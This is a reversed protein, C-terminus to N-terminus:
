VLEIMVFGLADAPVFGLQRRANALTTTSMGREITVVVGDVLRGLATTAGSALLAPTSVLILDYRSRLAIMADEATPTAALAALESGKDGPGMVDFVADGLGPTQGFSIRATASEVSARGALLEALGAGPALGIEQAVPAGGADADILLVRRGSRVAVIAANVVTDTYGATPTIAVFMAIGRQFVAGFNSSLLEYQAPPRALLDIHGSRHEVVTVEGLLPMGLLDVVEDSRQAIPSSDARFWALVVAVLAGLGMGIIGYKIVSMLTGNTEVSRAPDLFDVGDGFLAQSTRIETVRKDLAVLRTTASEILASEVIASSGPPVLAGSGIEARLDTREKELPAIAADAKEVTQAVTLESFSAAVADAGRVALEGSDLSCSVILTNSEAIDSVSCADRLDAATVEGGVLEAARALVAGSTAFEARDSLYRSIEVQVSGGDNFITTGRPDALTLRAEATPLEPAVLAFLMGLVAGGATLTITLKRFRRTAALLGPSEVPLHPEPAFMM